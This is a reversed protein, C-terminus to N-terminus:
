PTFEVSLSVQTRKRIQGSLIIKKMFSWIHRSLWTPTKLCKSHHFIFIAHDVSDLMRRSRSGECSTLLVLGVIMFYVKLKM